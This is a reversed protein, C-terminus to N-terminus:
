KFFNSLFLFQPFFLKKVIHRRKRKVPHAPKATPATTLSPRPAAVETIQPGSALPGGRGAGDQGAGPWAGPLAGPEGVAAPHAALHSAPHGPRQSCAPQSAPHSAPRRARRSGSHASHSHPYSRVVAAARVAGHAARRGPPAPHWNSRSFGALARRGRGLFLCPGHCPVRATCPLSRPFPAACEGWGRTHRTSPAASTTDLVNFARVVRFGQCLDRPKMISCPSRAAPRPQALAPGCLPLGGRPRERDVGVLEQGAGGRRTWCPQGPATSGRYRPLSCACATSLFSRCRPLSRPPM